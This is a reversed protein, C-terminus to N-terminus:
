KQLNQIMQEIVCTTTEKNAKTVGAFMRKEIIESLKPIKALLTEGTQTLTIFNSRKDVKNESRKLLGKKVLGDIIGTLTAPEVQM